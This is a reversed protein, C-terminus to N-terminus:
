PAQRRAGVASKVKDLGPVRNPKETDSLVCITLPESELPKQQGPLPITTSLDNVRWCCKIGKPEFPRM